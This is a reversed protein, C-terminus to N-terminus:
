ESAALSQNNSEIMILKSRIIVYFIVGTVLVYLWGKYTQIKMIVQIDDIMWELISDSFLIWAFGFTLYVILFKLSEKNPKLDFLSDTEKSSKKHSDNDM